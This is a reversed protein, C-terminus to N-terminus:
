ADFLLEQIIEEINDDSEDRSNLNYSKYWEEDRMEIMETVRGELDALTPREDPKVATCSVIMYRLEPEITNNPETDPIMFSAAVLIPMEDGGPNYFDAGERRPLLDFASSRNLTSMAAMLVGFDFVNEPEGNLQFSKRHAPYERALGFDIAKIIPVLDHEEDSDSEFAGFMVNGDHLDNHVIKRAPGPGITELQPKGDAGPGAPPWALAIGIRILCLFLRLLMRNPLQRDKEYARDVFTGVTGNELWEIYIWEGQRIGHPTIGKIVKRLPDNPPQILHVVHMAWQLISLYMGEESISGTGGDDGLGRTAHHRDMKMVLRQVKGAGGTPNRPKYLLRWAIGYAGVGVVKEFRFRKPTESDFYQTLLSRADKVDEDLDSDSM